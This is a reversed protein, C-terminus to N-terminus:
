TECRTVPLSFEWRRTSSISLRIADPHAGAKVIFDYELQEGAGYYEVDIGRYVSETKARAYTQVNTRWKAPDDGYLYNIRGPQLDVGIVCSSKRAGAFEVRISDAPHSGTGIPFDISTGTLRVAPGIGRALFTGKEDTPEFRIPLKNLAAAARNRDVSNPAHRAPYPPGGDRVQQARATGGGGIVTLLACVIIVHVTKRM